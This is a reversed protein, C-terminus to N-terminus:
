VLYYVSLPQYRAYQQHVKKRTTGFNYWLNTAPYANWSEVYKLWKYIQDWWVGRYNPVPAVWCHRRRGQCAHARSFEMWMTRFHSSIWFGDLFLGFWSSLFGDVPAFKWAFFLFLVRKELFCVEKNKVPERTERTKFWQLWRHSDWREPARTEASRMRELAGPQGPAVTEAQTFVTDTGFWLSLLRFSLLPLHKNYVGGFNFM